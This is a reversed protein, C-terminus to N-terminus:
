SEQAIQKIIHMPIVAHHGARPTRGARVDKRVGDMNDVAVTGDEGHHWKWGHEVKVPEPDDGLENPDERSLPSVFVRRANRELSSPWTVHGARQAERVLLTRHEDAKKDLTDSTVHIVGDKMGRVALINEDTWLATQRGRPQSRLSGTSNKGPQGALFSRVVHLNSSNPM